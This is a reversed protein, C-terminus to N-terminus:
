LASWCGPRSVSQRTSCMGQSTQCSEAACAHVHLSVQTADDTKEAGSQAKGETVACRDSCSLNPCAQDRQLAACAHHHSGKCGQHLSRALKDEALGPRVSQLAHEAQM